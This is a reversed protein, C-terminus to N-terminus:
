SLRAKIRDSVLKMDARGQVQPRLMNMVKGMDRVSEAGTGTVAQQILADLEADSLPTPLYNGIVTLEASEKAALDERGAQEYQAISERRQKVMKDLVALVEAETLSKREDVERQKIAALILRITGLREKDKARMASKMDEEIRQRLSSDPV